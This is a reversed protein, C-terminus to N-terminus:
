EQNKAFVIDVLKTLFYMGFILPVFVMLNILGLSATGFKLFGFMSCTQLGGSSFINQCQKTHLYQAIHQSIIMVDAMLFVAAWYYLTRKNQTLKAWTEKIQM